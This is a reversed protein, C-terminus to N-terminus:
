PESVAIGTPSGSSASSSLQISQVLQLGGNASSGVIRLVDIQPTPNAGGAPDLARLQYLFKGRPDVAIDLAGPSDSTPTYTSVAALRGNSKVSYLSLSAPQFNSTWLRKGNPTTAAWCPDVAAPATLKSVIAPIATGTARISIVGPSADDALAAFAVFPQRPHKAGGFPANVNTLRQQATLGGDAGVTFTDIANAGNQLVVLRVGNQTFFIDTPVDTAEFEVASVDLEVPDEETDISFGVCRAPAVGPQGQNLVYLTKGNIALSVPRVGLSPVTTALELGSNNMIRFVSFDNSGANTVFVHTQTCVVAHSQAGNIATLGYGGTDFSGVSTLIGTKANRKFAEVTNPGNPNTSVYVGYGSGAASPLAPVLLAAVATILALRRVFSTATARM